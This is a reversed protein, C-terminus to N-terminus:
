LFAAGSNLLPSRRVAPLRYHLPRCREADRDARDVIYILHLVEADGEAIANEVLRLRLLVPEVVAGAAGSGLRTFSEM